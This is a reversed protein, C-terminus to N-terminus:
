ARGHTEPEGHTMWATCVPLLGSEGCYDRMSSYRWQEGRDVFGRRVPNFHLYELKQIMMERSVIQEPHSGEQWVQFHQDHKGPLKAQELKRLLPENNSKQFSDVIERATFAKFQWLSHSLNPSRLIAHLHNEMFVWGYIQLHATDHLWRLSTLALDAIERRSFLPLWRVFTCTVFHPYESNYIKYRSRSM